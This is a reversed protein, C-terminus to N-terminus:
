FQETEELHKLPNALFDEVFERIIERSLDEDEQRVRSLPPYFAAHSHDHKQVICLRPYVFMFKPDSNETDVSFFIMCFYFFSFHVIPATPDHDVHPWRKKIKQKVSKKRLLNTDSSSIFIFIFNM